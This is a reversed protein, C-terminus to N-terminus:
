HSKYFDWGEEVSGTFVCRGRSLIVVKNCWGRILSESHSALVMIKTQKLFNTLRDHAKNLFAVDGAGIGEDIILIEPITSTALAFALRAQMGLSWTRMPFNLFEGLETFECIDEVIRDFNRLPVGLIKLRLMINEYGSAEDDMGLTSDFISSVRGDVRVSGFTPEYITALVRLLTSKGAGNYGLLGLRDGDQLELSIDDLAKVVTINRAGRAIKGGTTTELLSKVLSVNGASYVPFDVTVAEVSIHPM